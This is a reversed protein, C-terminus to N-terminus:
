ASISIVAEIFVSRSQCTQKQEGSQRRNTKRPREAKDPHFQENFSGNADKWEDSQGYEKGGRQMADGDHPGIEPDDIVVAEIGCFPVATGDDIFKFAISPIERYLKM